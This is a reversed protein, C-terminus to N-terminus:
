EIDIQHGTDHQDEVVIEKPIHVQRSVHRSGRARYADSGREVDHHARVTLYGEDFTLDIDEKEFGPLDMVFVYTDGEDELSVAANGRPTELVGADGEIAQATQGAELRPTELESWWTARMQEFMRDMERFLQNMDEFSRM